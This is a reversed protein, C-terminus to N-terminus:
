SFFSVLHFHFPFFTECKSIHSFEKLQHSHNNMCELLVSKGKLIQFPQTITLGIKVEFTAFVTHKVYGNSESKQLKAM